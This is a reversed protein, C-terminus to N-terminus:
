KAEIGTRIQEAIETSRSKVQRAWKSDLAEIAALGYAHLSLAANMKTFGLFTPLGLNFVMNVIAEKRALNLEHFYPLTKAERYAQTIDYDLILEALEKSMPHDLNHGYGVTLHGETDEYTNARFGEHKKLKSFVSM